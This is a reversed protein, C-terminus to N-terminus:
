KSDRFNGRDFARRMYFRHWDPMLAEPRAEKTRSNLECVNRGIIVNYSQCRIEQECRLYCEAPFGAQVTKFTHGKLFMGYVAYEKSHCQDAAVDPVIGSMVLSVLLWIRPNMTMMVKMMM